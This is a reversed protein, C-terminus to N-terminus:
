FLFLFSFFVISYFRISDFQISYFKVCVKNTLDKIDKQSNEIEDQMEGNNRKVTQLVRGTDQHREREARLEQQLQM